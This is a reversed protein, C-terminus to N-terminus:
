KIYQLSILRTRQHKVSYALVNNQFMKKSFLLYYKETFPLAKSLQQLKNLSALGTRGNEWICLMCCAQQKQTAVLITDKLGKDELWWYGIVEYPFAFDNRELLTDCYQLCIEPFVQACYSDLEPLVQQRFISGGKGLAILSQYPFVFRYWFVLLSNKLKYYTKRHQKAAQAETLPNIRQLLNLDLLTKIYKSLKNMELGTAAAIASLREAGGAIATLIAHYTAPERMKEQLITKAALSFTGKEVFFLEQLNDKWSLQGQLQELYLPYGGTVGYLLVREEVEFSTLYEQAELYTLRSLQIKLFVQKRLVTYQKAGLINLDTTVLLVFLRLAGTGENVLETLTELLTPFYGPLYEAADLVLVLGEGRSSKFFDALLDRGTVADKGWGQGRGERFFLEKNVQEMTRRVAYYLYKKNKLFERVLSTKGLGHEGQVMGIAFRNEKYLQELQQLEKERGYLM